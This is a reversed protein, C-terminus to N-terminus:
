VSAQAPSQIHEERLDQLDEETVDELLARDEEAFNFDELLRDYKRGLTDLDRRLKVNDDKQLNYSQRLETNSM